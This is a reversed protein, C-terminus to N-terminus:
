RAERACIRTAHLHIQVEYMNIYWTNSLYVIDGLQAYLDRPRSKLVPCQVQSMVPFISTSRAVLTHISHSRRHVTNYVCMSVHIWRLCMQHTPTKAHTHPAQTIHEFSTVRELHSFFRLVNAM